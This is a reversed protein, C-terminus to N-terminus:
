KIIVREDFCLIIDKLKKILNNVNHIDKKQRLYKSFSEIKTYYEDYFMKKRLNIKSSRLYVDTLISLSSCSNFLNEILYFIFCATKINTKIVVKPMLIKYNDPYRRGQIIFTFDCIDKGSEKYEDEIHISLNSIIKKLQNIKYKLWPTMDM